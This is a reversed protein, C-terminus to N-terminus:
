ANHALGVGQNLQAVKRYGMTLILGKQIYPVFKFAGLVMHQAVMVGITPKRFRLRHFPSFHLAAVVREIQATPMKYHEISVVLLGLRPAPLQL